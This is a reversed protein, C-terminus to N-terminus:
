TPSLNLDLSVNNETSCELDLGPRVQGESHVTVGDCTQVLTSSCACGLRCVATLVSGINVYCAASLLGFYTM